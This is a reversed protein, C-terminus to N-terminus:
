IHACSDFSYGRRVGQEEDRPWKTQWIKTWLVCIIMKFNYFAHFNFSVVSASVTTVATRITNPVIAHKSYWEFIWHSRTDSQYMPRDNLRSFRVGWETNTCNISSRVLWVWMGFAYIYGDRHTQAYIMCTHKACVTWAIRRELTKWESFLDFAYHDNLPFQTSFAIFMCVCIMYTLHHRCGFLKILNM